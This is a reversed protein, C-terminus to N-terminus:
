IAARELVGCKSSPFLTSLMKQAKMATKEKPIVPLPVFSLVRGKEHDCFFTTLKCQKGM